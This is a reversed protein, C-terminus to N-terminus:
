RGASGPSGRRAQTGDRGRRANALAHELEAREDEEAAMSKLQDLAEELDSVAGDFDRLALRARGSGGLAYAHQRRLHPASGSTQAVALFHDLAREDRGQALDLEGLNFRVIGLSPHESRRASREIVLARELLTRAQDYDGDERLRSGLNTLAEAVKPHDPGLAREYLEIARGYLARAERSDGRRGRAAGLNMLIGATSPSHARTGESIRLAARYLREADEDRGEVRAIYGQNALVTARTPHHEGMLNSLMAAAAENHSKAEALGGSRVALSGAFVRLLALTVALAPDDASLGDMAQQVDASAGSVDAQRLKARARAWLFKARAHPDGQALTLADGLRLWREVDATEELSGGILDVQHTVARLAVDDLGLEVAALYCRELQNRAREISGSRFELIADLLDARVRLTPSDLPAMRDIVEDLAVRAQEHRGASQLVFARALRADVEGLEDLMAQDLPAGAALRGPGVDPDECDAVPALESVLSVARDVTNPDPHQLVEVTAAFSARRQELCRTEHDLFRMSADNDRGRECAGRKAAMWQEAYTDLRQQVRDVTAEAHPLDLASMREHISAEIRPNWDTVIDQASRDCDITREGLGPVLFAACLVAPFAGWWLYRRLDGRVRAALLAHLSPWREAPETMTGRTLARVPGRTRSRGTVDAADTKRHTVADLWAVCLAYQDSAPTIAAGKRLEPAMYKPTGAQPRGDEGVHRALGFDLLKLRLGPLVMVNEPKFDGHVIGADHLAALVEAAQRFVSEIARRTPRTELWAGLSQGRVHELAVFVAEDHHVIEYIELVAPHRIEALIRAEERLREVQDPLGKRLRKLAVTRRLRLDWAEWVTGYGGQGLLARVEYRGVRLPPEERGLLRAVTTERARALELSDIRARGLM